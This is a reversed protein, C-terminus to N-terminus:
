DDERHQEFVEKDMQGHDFLLLKETQWFTGHGLVKEKLREARYFELM